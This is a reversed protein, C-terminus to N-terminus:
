RVRFRIHSYGGGSHYHGGGSVKAYGLGAYGIGRQNRYYGTGAATQAEMAAWRAREAAEKQAAEADIRAQSQNWSMDQYVGSQRSLWYETWGHLNNLEADERAETERERELWRNILATEHIISQQSRHAISGPRCIGPLQQLKREYMEKYPEVAARERAVDAQFQQEQIEAQQVQPDFETGQALLVTDPAAWAQQPSSVLCLVGAFVVSFLYIRIRLALSSNSSM